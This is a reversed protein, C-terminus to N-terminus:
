GGKGRQQPPTRFGKRHMRMQGMEPPPQEFGLMFWPMGFSKLVPKKGNQMRLLNEKGIEDIANKKLYQGLAAIAEDVRGEHHLMWARVNHLLPHKRNVVTALQLTQLARDKQGARHQLTALFLQGEAVRRSSKQLLEEAEKPAGLQFKLIGLQALIQGRLLPMWRDHALMDRLSQMAPEVHGAELQRQVVLMMPQIRKGVRRVILVWAVASVLLTFFIAWGLGWWSISWGGFGFLLGVAVAIAVSYM